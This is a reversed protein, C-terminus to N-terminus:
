ASYFLQLQGPTFQIDNASFVWFPQTPALRYVTNWAQACGSHELNVIHRLKNIFRTPGVYQAALAAITPAVDADDLGDQIILLEQVPFDISTICRALFKTGARVFVALLPIKHEPAAEPLVDRIFSLDSSHPPPHLLEQYSFSVDDAHGPARAAEDSRLLPCPLASLAPAAPAVGLTGQAGQFAAGGGAYRLFALALVLVAAAVVLPFRLAAGRRSQAPQPRM